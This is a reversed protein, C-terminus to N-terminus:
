FASRVHDCVRVDVVSQFINFALIPPADVGAVVSAGMHGCDADCGGDDILGSGLHLMGKSYLTRGFPSSGLLTLFM